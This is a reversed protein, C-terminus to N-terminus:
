VQKERQEPLASKQKEQDLMNVTSLLTAISSGNNGNTYIKLPQGKRKL